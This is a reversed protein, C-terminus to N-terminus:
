LTFSALNVQFFSLMTVHMNSGEYTIGYPNTTHLTEIYRASYFRERLTTFHARISLQILRRAPLHIRRQYGVGIWHIGFIPVFQGIAFQILNGKMREPLRGKVLCILIHANLPMNTVIYCALLKGYLLDFKTTALLCAIHHHYFHELRM